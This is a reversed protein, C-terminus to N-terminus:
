KSRNNGSRSREPVFSSDRDDEILFSHVVVALAIVLFGAPIYYSRRKNGSLARLLDDSTEQYEKYFKPDDKGDKIKVMMVLRSLRDYSPILESKMSRALGRLTSAGYMQVARSEPYREMISLIKSLGGAKVITMRSKLCPDTSRDTYVLLRLMAPVVNTLGFKGNATARLVEWDQANVLRDLLVCFGECVEETHTSNDLDNVVNALGDALGDCLIEKNGNVETLLFLVHMGHFRIDGEHVHSHMADLILKMVHAEALKRAVSPEKVFFAAFFLVMIGYLQVDPEERYKHMATVMAAIGGENAFRFAIQQHSARLKDHLNLLIEKTEKLSPYTARNKHSLVQVLDAIAGYKPAFSIQTPLGQSRSRLIVAVKGSVSSKRANGGVQYYLIDCKANFKMQEIITHGNKTMANAYAGVEAKLNGANGGIGAAYKHNVNEANKANNMLDVEAGTRYIKCFRLFGGDKKTVDDDHYKYIEYGVSAQFESDQVGKGNFSVPLLIPEFSM